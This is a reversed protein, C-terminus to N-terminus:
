RSKNINVIVPSGGECSVSPAMRCRGRSFHGLGLSCVAGRFDTWDLGEGGERKGGGWGEKRRKRRGEGSGEVGWGSNCTSDHGKGGFKM